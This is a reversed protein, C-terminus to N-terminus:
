MVDKKRLPAPVDDASQSWWRSGPRRGTGGGGGGGGRGGWTM